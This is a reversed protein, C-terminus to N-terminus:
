KLVTFKRSMIKDDAKIILFYSGPAFNKTSIVNKESKVNYHVEKNVFKAFGDIVEYTVTKASQQFVM